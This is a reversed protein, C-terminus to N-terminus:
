GKFKKGYVEEFETMDVTGGNRKIELADMIDSFRAENIPYRLTLVAVLIM